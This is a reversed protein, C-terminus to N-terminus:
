VGGQIKLVGGPSESDGWPNEWFVSYEGPNVLIGGQIKVGMLKWFVGQIEFDLPTNINVGGPNQLIGGQVKLFVGRSKWFELFDM